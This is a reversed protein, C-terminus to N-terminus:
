KAEAWNGAIHVDVLNRVDADPFVASFDETMAAALAEAAKAADAESSEVLVEDHVCNVIVADLRMLLKPLKGLVLLMIDAGTGQVTYNVPCTYGARGFPFIARSLDTVPTDGIYPFM